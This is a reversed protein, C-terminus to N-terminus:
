TEILTNGLELACDQSTGTTVPMRKNKSEVLNAKVDSTGTSLGESSETLENADLV